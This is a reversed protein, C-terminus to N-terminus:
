QQKYKNTISILETISHTLKDLIRDCVSVDHQIWVKHLQLNEPFRDDYSAFIAGKAESLLINLQIQYYYEPAVDLLDEPTEIQLYKLHTASNPCKLEIILNDNINIGDPSACVYDGNLYSAYLQSGYQQINQDDLGWKMDKCLAEFAKPELEKGREMDNNLVQMKQKKTLVEAAVENIYTKAGVSLTEGKKKPETMLRHIQSATFRGIRKLQWDNESNYIIPLKM